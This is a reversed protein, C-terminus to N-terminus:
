AARVDCALNAVAARLITQNNFRLQSATLKEIFWLHCHIVMGFIRSSELLVVKAYSLLKHEVLKSSTFEIVKM